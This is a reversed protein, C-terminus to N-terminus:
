VNEIVRKLFELSSQKMAEYASREIILRDCTLKLLDELSVDNHDVFYRDTTGFLETLSKMRCGMESTKKGSVAFPREYIHSFVTAHFSDTLVFSAHKILSLFDNPSIDYLSYDGFGDDVKRYAANLYPLTVLKLGRADAYERAVKRLNENDGLFYCFLFAEQILRKETCIRDWDGASLLLTPDLVYTITKETLEQLAPISDKERISIYRTCELASKLKQQQLKDLTIKGTSAAYSATCKEPSVFELAMYRNIWSPNWVQDSGTVFGDYVGNARDITSSYYLKSHPISQNFRDVAANRVVIEKAISNKLMRQKMVSLFRHLKTHYYYTILEADAGMCQIVERLAYAQLNAGYNRNQFYMTCIGIKKMATSGYGLQIDRRAALATRM